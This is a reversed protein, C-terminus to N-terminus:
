NWYPKYNPDEIYKRFWLWLGRAQKYGISFKHKERGKSTTQKKREKQKDIMEIYGDIKSLLFRKQKETFQEIEESEEKITQNIAEKIEMNIGKGRGERKGRCVRCDRCVRGSKM